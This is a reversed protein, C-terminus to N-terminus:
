QVDHRPTLGLSAALEAETTGHLDDARALLLDIAVRLLTNDTIREGVTTGDPQRRAKNLRRTLLTLADAQDYHVRSERRRLQQYKPGEGARGTSRLETVEPTRM